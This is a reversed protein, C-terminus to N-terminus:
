QEVCVREGWKMVQGIYWILGFMVLRKKEYGIKVMLLSNVHGTLLNTSLQNTKIM